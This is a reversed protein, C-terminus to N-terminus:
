RDYKEKILKEYLDIQKQVQIEESYKSAIKISNKSFKNRLKADDLIELVKRAISLGNPNAFFGNKGDKVVESVKKDVIVIPCGALAAEHVVLGQTDTMSPFVFVDLNKYAINLKERPMKGTFIVREDFGTEEAMYELEDRFNFDGVFMLKVNEDRPAIYAFAKILLELNKESGLRGVYGFVKDTNKIGFKDRFAQIEEDSVGPLADVGTPMLEIDYKYNKDQWSKLQAKSKRSLAIVADCRSYAMAMAKEVLNKNWNVIGLKPRYMSLLNKIDVGNFKFMFPLTTGFLLLAPLVQPYHEVYQYLDTSHQGILITGNKQSAYAGMLGVQTPTYFHIIDLNLDTIQRLKRPPFFLSIRNDEFVGSPVSKFKIIHDDNEFESDETERVGPCFIFVEHGAEELRQRTIDIVAVIGNTAPKYTDTFLGIRM